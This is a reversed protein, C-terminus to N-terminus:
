EPKLAETVAPTSSSNAALTMAKADSKSFSSAFTSMSKKLGENQHQTILLRILEQQKKSSLREMHIFPPENPILGNNQLFVVLDMLNKRIEGPPLWVTSNADLLIAIHPYTVKNNLLTDFAINKKEDLTLKDGCALIGTVYANYEEIFAQTSNRYKKSDPGDLHDAEHAATNIPVKYSFHSLDPASFKTLFSYSSTTFTIEKGENVFAGTFILPDEPQNKKDRSPSFLNRFQEDNSFIVTNSPDLLRNVIRTLTEQQEASHSSLKLNVFNAVLACYMWQSELNAVQFDPKKVLRGMAEICQQNPYLDIQTLIVYQMKISLHRFEYSAIFPRLPAALDPNSELKRIKAQLEEDSIPEYRCRMACIIDQPRTNRIDQGHESTFEDHITARQYVSFAELLVANDQTNHALRFLDKLILLQYEIPVGKSEFLEILRSKASKLQSGLSENSLATSAITEDLGRTLRLYMDSAAVVENTSLVTSTRARGDSDPIKKTSDKASDPVPEGRAFAVSKNGSPKIMDFLSSRTPSPGGRIEAM